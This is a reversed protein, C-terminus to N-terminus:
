RAHARIPPPRWRVCGREVAPTCDGSPVGPRDAPVAVVSRDEV